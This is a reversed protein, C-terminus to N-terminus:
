RRSKKRRKSSKKRRKSSKKRRKASKKRRKSSKKRRKSSKKRDKDRLSKLFNRLMSASVNGGSQGSGWGKVTDHTGQVKSNQISNMVKKLIQNSNPSIKNSAGSAFQISNGQGGPLSSCQGTGGGRTAKVYAAHATDAAIREKHRPQASVQIKDWM